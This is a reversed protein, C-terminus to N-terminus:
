ATKEQGKYKGSRLAAVAAGLRQGPQPREVKSTRNGGFVIAHRGPQQQGPLQQESLAAERGRAEAAKIADNYKTEAVEERKTPVNNMEEWIVRPDLSKQNGKTGARTQLEKVIERTDLRKGFLEQHEAAIQQLEAPLTLAMSALGAIQDVKAYGSLDVPAPKPEEKKPLPSDGLLKTADLGHESAIRTVSQKLRLVEQQSSELDARLQTAATKEAATLSAWEAMERNLNESAAALADEAKKLEAKGENMSRDYDSQRMFGAGVKDARAEFQPFLATAEAESFGLDDVLWKKTDFKAKAM